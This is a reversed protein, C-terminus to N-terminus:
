SDSRALGAADQSLQVRVLVPDMSPDLTVEQVSGVAVGKYVVTPKGAEIGAGTQFRITIEPGHARSNRAIMWGGVVFAILPVVWILPLSRRRVVVPAVPKTM